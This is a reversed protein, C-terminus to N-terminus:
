DGDVLSQKILHSYGELDVWSDLHKPNSASRMIKLFLDSYMIQLDEPLDKGSHTSRYVSKVAEMMKARASVGDSYKGYISGRQNLIDKTNTTDPQGNIITGNSKM